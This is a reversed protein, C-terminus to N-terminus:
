RVMAASGHLEALRTRTAEALGTSGLDEFAVLAEELLQRGETARGRRSAVVGLNSTALAVGVPYRAGRWVRLAERLLAEAEDFRGLEILVEAINNDATAAGVVDGATLRAARSREYLALAGALDGAFFANTGLNNLVNAQGVLDGTRMFIPLADDRFRAAEEDRGLDTLASELLYYAHALDHPDDNAAALDAAQRAHRIAQHLRGQRYRVGAYANHLAAVCGAVETGTHSEAERLARGFWRLAATYRGTREEVVGQKRLLRLRCMPDTVARRAIAYAEAAQPYLAAVECTDGCREAVDALEAGALDPLHSAAALARRYADVAEANAYATRAADGAAVALPWAEGWRGAQELHWSVLALGDRDSTGPRDAGDRGLLM